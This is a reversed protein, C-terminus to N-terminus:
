VMNLGYIEECIDVEVIIVEIMLTYDPLRYNNLTIYVHVAKKSLCNM